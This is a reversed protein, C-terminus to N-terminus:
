RTVQINPEKRMGDIAKTATTGYTDAYRGAMWESVTVPPYKAGEPGECGSLCKINYDPNGTFFFPISYRIYTSLVPTVDAWEGTDDQLLITVARFDTHAGIIRLGMDRGLDSVTPAQVLYHLLLLIAISHESFADFTNDDLNLTHALVIETAEIFAAPNAVEVPYKNLGQGWKRQVVYRDDLSLNKGLYFGKQIDGQARNEFSQARSREYERDYGGIELSYKEKVEVPLDFIEKSQQFISAQLDLPISHNVTQFFGFDECAQQMEDVFKEKATTEPGYFM